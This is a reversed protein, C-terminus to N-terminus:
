EVIIQIEDNENRSRSQFVVVVVVVVIKSNNEQRCAALRGWNSSARDNPLGFRILQM